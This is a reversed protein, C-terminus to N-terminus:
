LGLEERYKSRSVASVAFKRWTSEIELAEEATQRTEQKDFVGLVSAGSGCLVANVAGLEILAKKVRAVEPFAEFVVGELDNVLVSAAPDLWEAEKRCVSLNHERAADTLTEARFRGFVDATSVAADPTVILMPYAPIDDIPEIVDGRGIGNASGGCLFFPVDAGVKSAIRVLDVAPDVNWLRSLGFLATAANSSGGGLGGPSPISKELHMRAGARAGAAARLLEAAKVITNEHTTAINPDSCTLSISDAAEFTIRDSLSVTQFVTFLEHYGDTRKGLVRLMWNVKAFSPLSFSM